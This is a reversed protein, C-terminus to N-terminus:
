PSASPWKGRCSTPKLDSTDVSRRLQSRARDEDDAGLALTSLAPRPDDLLGARPRQAADARRHAAREEASSVTREQGFSLDGEVVTVHERRAEQPDKGFLTPAREDEGSAVLGLRAASVPGHM